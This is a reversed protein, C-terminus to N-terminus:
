RSLVEKYVSVIRQAVYENTLGSSAILDRGKTRKGFSLAASLKEALNKPDRDAIYCGNLGEIRERVDGVDVSVIPCGCAMAEKIVQPSGETISTMMMVDAAQMMLAVQSRTYGQLPLLEAGPLLSVASKALSANKIPNEFSGAFLVYKKEKSLGMMDRADAKDTIPYDNLNIGCPILDFHNKPCALELTKRSVFISFASLRMAIRSLPRVRADNIDSGHFTTVVPVRRQFNAFVGCLGYHAHIIDPQFSRIVRMLEPLQRLYGVLGKHRIGLFRCGVGLKVLAEVQESIFPAYHGEKCRAVILNKM